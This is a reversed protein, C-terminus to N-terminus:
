INNFPGKIFFFFICSHNLMIHLSQSCHGPVQRANDKIGSQLFLWGPVDLPLHLM